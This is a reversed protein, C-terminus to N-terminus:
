STSAEDLIYSTSTEELDKKLPYLFNQKHLKTQSGLM